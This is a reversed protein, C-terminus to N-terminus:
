GEAAHREKPTDPAKPHPYKRDLARGSFHIYAWGSAAVLAAVVVLELTM